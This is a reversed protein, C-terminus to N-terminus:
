EVAGRWRMWVDKVGGGSAFNVKVKFDRFSIKRDLFSQHHGIDQSKETIIYVIFNSLPRAAARLTTSEYSTQKLHVDNLLHYL